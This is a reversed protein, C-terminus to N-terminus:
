GTIAGSLYTQLISNFNPTVPVSTSSTSSGSVAGFKTSVFNGGVSALTGTSGAASIFAQVNSSTALVTGSYAAAVGSAFATRDADNAPLSGSSFVLKPTFILGGSNTQGNVMFGAPSGDSISVTGSATMINPVALINVTGGTSVKVAVGNFTGKIYALAPKGTAAFTTDM